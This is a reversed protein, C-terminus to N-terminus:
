NIFIKKSINFSANSYNVVYVGVPYKLPIIEDKSIVQKSLLQGNLNYIQLIGNTDVNDIKLANNNDGLFTLNTKSLVNNRTSTLVVNMVDSVLYSVILGTDKQAQVVYNGSSPSFTLGSGAFTATTDEIKYWKYNYLNPISDTKLEGGELRLKPRTSVNWYTGRSQYSFQGIPGFLEAVKTNSATDIIENINNNTNCSFLGRNIICMGNVYDVSGLALSICEPTVKHKYVVNATNNSENIDYLIAEMYPHAADGNSFVSYLGNEAQYFDHQLFYRNTDALQIATTDKGSLKFMIGGTERNIKGCGIHRFSYLINGDNAWRASNGHSWNLRSGYSTSSNRYEYYMECVSLHELPNWVFVPTNNSDLIVIYTVVAKITTDAPNNSLCRADITKYINAMLMKEGRENYRIDHLDVMSQASDINYTIRNITSDVLTISSTDFAFYGIYPPALNGQYYSAGFSAFGNKQLNFDLFFDSENFTANSSAHEGALYWLPPFPQAAHVIQLSTPYNNPHNPIATSIFDKTSLLINLGQVKTSNYINSQIPAIRELQASANFFFITLLIVTFLNKM